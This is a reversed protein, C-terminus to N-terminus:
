GRPKEEEVSVKSSGFASHLRGGHWTFEDRDARDVLNQLCQAILRGNEAEQIQVEAATM